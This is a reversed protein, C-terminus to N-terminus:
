QSFPFLTIRNPPPLTTFSIETGTAKTAEKVFVKGTVEQGMKPYIFSYGSLENQNGINVATYNRNESFKEIQKM